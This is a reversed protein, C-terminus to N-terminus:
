NKLVKGMLLSSGSKLRYFYLGDKLIQLGPILVSQIGQSLVETKYSYVERGQSDFFSITAFDNKESFFTIRIESEFPNPYAMVEQKVLINDTSSNESNKLCRVSFANTVPEPNTIVKDNNNEIIRMLVYTGSKSSTWINAADGISLTFGEDAFFGGPLATFGSENTAGTNPYKWHMSGKERLKGGAYDVGGLYEELIRWGAHSPVHWGSPCVGQTSEVSSNKMAAKWTYFMGYINTLSDNSNKHAESIISGDAYHESKLNEQMWTQDGIKITRYINGDYDTIMNDNKVTEIIQGTVVGTCILLNTVIFFLFNKSTQKM